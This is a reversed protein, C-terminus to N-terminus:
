RDVGVLEALGRDIQQRDVYRQPAGQGFPATRPLDLPLKGDECEVDTQELIGCLVYEPDHELNQIFEEVNDRTDLTGNQENYAFVLNSLAVPAVDVVEALADRRDVLVKTVRALGAIDRRLIERNSEVFGRVDGLAQGLTRLMVALDRREGALVTSVQALSANFRRVAADNVALAHVFREVQTISDFLADKNNSLTGSLLALDHITQRMQAGSGRLNAASADILDSLSGDANAGNPGLAVSLQDLSSYIEDLEVPTATESEDIHAGDPMVEGGTYVPTLQVYRDGVITPQIIVAKADAPVQYTADYSMTVEVTTGQPEIVDVTGISVGLIRVDSGEYLAVTRPFDVTLTKRETDPRFVLVAAVVLTLVAATAVLRTLTSLRGLWSGTTAAM